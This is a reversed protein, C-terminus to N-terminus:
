ALKYRESLTAISLAHFIVTSFPIWRTHAPNEGPQPAHRATILAVLRFHVPSGTGKKHALALFLGSVIM